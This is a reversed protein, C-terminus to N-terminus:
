LLELVKKPIVYKKGCFSCTVENSKSVLPQSAGCHPCEMSITGVRGLNLNASVVYNTKALRRCEGAKEWMELEEYARAAEEYRGATELKAIKELKTTKALKRCEEGKEKMGLKDYAQAAESYRGAMELEAIEEATTYVNKGDQVLDRSGCYPCIDTDSALLEEKCNACKLKSM